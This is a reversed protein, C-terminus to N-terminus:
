CEPVPRAADLALYVSYSYGRAGTTHDTLLFWYPNDTVPDGAEECWVTVRHHRRGLGQVAAGLRPGSRIRVEDQTFSAPVGPNSASVPAAPATSVVAAAALVFATRGIM